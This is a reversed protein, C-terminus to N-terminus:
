QGTKANKHCGDKEEKAAGNEDNKAARRNVLESDEKANKHCCDEEEKAVGMKVIKQMKKTLQNAARNKGERTKLKWNTKRGEEGGKEKTKAKKQRM